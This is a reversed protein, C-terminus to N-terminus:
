SLFIGFDIFGLNLLKRNDGAVEIGDGAEGPKYGTEKMGTIGL